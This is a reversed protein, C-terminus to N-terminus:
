ETLYKGSKRRKGRPPPHLAPAPGPRYMVTRTVVHRLGLPSSKASRPGGASRPSELARPKWDSASHPSRASLSYVSASRPSYTSGHYDRTPSPAYAHPSLFSAASSASASTPTPYPYPLHRSPYPVRSAPSMSQIPATPPPPALFAPGPKGRRGGYSPSFSPKVATAPPSRSSSQSRSSSSRFYSSSSKDLPSRPFESGAPSAFVPTMANLFETYAPPPTIATRDGDVATRPSLPSTAKPSRDNLESPFIMTRPTVLPRLTPRPAM